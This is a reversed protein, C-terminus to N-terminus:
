GPLDLTINEGSKVYRLERKGIAAVKGGDLRDGVKVILRKGNKLRVLASRKGSFYYVGLLNVESLNLARKITAKKGSITSNTTKASKGGASAEEGEEEPLMASASAVEVIKETPKKIKPRAKPRISQAVAGKYTEPEIPKVTEPRPKPRIVNAYLNEETAEPMNSPDINIYPLTTQEQRPLEELRAPMLSAMLPPPQYDSLDPPTLAALGVSTAATKKSRPNLMDIKAIPTSPLNETLQPVSIQPKQSTLAGPNQLEDFSRSAVRVKDITPPNLRIPQTASGPFQDLIGLPAIKSQLPLFSIMKESLSAEKKTTAALADLGAILNRKESADQEVFLATEFIEYNALQTSARQRVLPEWKGVVPNDVAIPEQVVPILPSLSWVGFNAKIDRLPEKLAQFASSMTPKSIQAPVKTLKLSKIPTIQPKSIAASKLGAQADKKFASKSEDGWEPRILDAHKTGYAEDTLSFRPLERGKDDELLSVRPQALPPPRTTQVFDGFALEKSFLQAETQIQPATDLVMVNDNADLKISKTLYFGSGGILAFIFSTTIVTPLYGERILTNASKEKRRINFPVLLIKALFREFFTTKESYMAGDQRADKTKDPLPALPAKVTPANKGSKGSSSKVSRERVSESVVSAIESTYINEEFEKIRAEANQGAVNLSKLDSSIVRIPIDDCEMHCAAGDALGFFVEGIFHGEPAIAVNGLPKFGQHTAFEEAEHLTHRAVAAVYITDADSVWDFGIEDLNYPTEEDLTLQIMKEIDDPRADKPRSLSFYKIQDNPIVLKVQSANRSRQMAATRLTALRDVFDADTLFVQGLLVWDSGSRQLFSIGTLSFSLAFDPKM